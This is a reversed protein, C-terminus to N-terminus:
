ETFVPPLMKAVYKLKDEYRDFTKNSNSCYREIIRAAKILSNKQTETVSIVEHTLYRYDKPLLMYMKESTEGAVRYYKEYHEQTFEYFDEERPEFGIDFIIKLAPGTKFFLDELM